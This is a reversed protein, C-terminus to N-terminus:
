NCRIKRLLLFFPQCCATASKNKNSVHAKHEMVDKQPVIAVNELQKITTKNDSISNGNTNNDDARNANNNSASTEQGVDDNKQFNLEVNKAEVQDVM